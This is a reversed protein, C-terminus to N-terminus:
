YQTSWRVRVLTLIVQRVVEKEESGDKGKKVITRSKEVVHFAIVPKHGYGLIYFIFNLINLLKYSFNGGTVKLIM